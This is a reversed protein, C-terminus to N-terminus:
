LLLVLLDFYIGKFFIMLFIIVFCWKIYVMLMCVSWRMVVVKCFVGLEFNGFGFSKGGGREWWVWFCIGLLLDIGMRGVGVLLLILYCLFYGGVVVM